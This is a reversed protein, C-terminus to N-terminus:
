LKRFKVRAGDKVASPPCVIVSAGPTLGKQLWSIISMELGWLHSRCTSAIHHRSGAGPAAPHLAPDFRRNFRYQAEAHYRHAYKAFDFAHYTGCLATKLNGLVINIAQFQPLKARQCLLRNRKQMVPLTAGIRFLVAREM